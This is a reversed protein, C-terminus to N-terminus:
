SLVRPFYQLSLFFFFFFSCHRKAPSSGGVRRSTLRARQRGQSSGQRFGRGGSGPFILRRPRMGEASGVGFADRPAAGRPLLVRSAAWGAGRPLLACSQPSTPSSPFAGRLLRPPPSARGAAAPHAGGPKTPFAPSLLAVRASRGGRRAAGFLSRTRLLGVKGPAAGSGCGHTGGVRAWRRGNGGLAAPGARLGPPSPGLAFYFHFSRLEGVRSRQRPWRSGRDRVSLADGGCAARRGARGARPRGPEAAEEGEEEGEGARGWGCRLLAPRRRGDGGSSMTGLPPVGGDRGAGGWVAKVSTGRLRHGGRCGRRGM